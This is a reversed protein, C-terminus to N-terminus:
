NAVSALRCTRSARATTSTSVSGPLKIVPATQKFVKGGRDVPDAFDTSIQTEYRCTISCAPATAHSPRSLVPSRKSEPSISCASPSIGCIRLSPQNGKFLFYDSERNGDEEKGAIYEATERQAGQSAAAKSNDLREPVGAGEDDVGTSGDDPVPTLV